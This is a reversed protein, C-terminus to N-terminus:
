HGGQGADLGRAFEDVLRKDTAPDVVIQSEALQIALIAAYRRLERRANAVSAAIEAEASEAIKRQELEAAAALRADEAQASHEAAARIAAIEQDIRALREEIESLRAGAEAGAKRAEDLGSQISAKKAHYAAPLFKMAVKGLGAALISFNLLTFVWYATTVDHIGLMEGFKRVVASYKMAEEVDAEGAEQDPGHGAAAASQESQAPSGAAAPASPSHEQAWGSVLSFFSLAFLLLLGRRMM